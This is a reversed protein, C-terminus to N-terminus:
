GRNGGFSQVFLKGAAVRDHSLQAFDGAVRGTVLWGALEKGISPAIKFGHGSGGCFDAYGATGTRPGAFPYWDPTVDYLAAYSDVLRMGSFAPFRHVMRAQVDAVFEPDASQKYNCPDVDFYQKPFGRGIVYRREGLPRIYIADVGNSISTTPVNRGRPAEWVTDQERVSRMPMDLGAGEALARAWPGAANVVMGAPVTGDETEVGTIRTRDGVLRRAPTRPRWDGGLARFAEVHAETARVPDAHGGDPEYVIGAIGEPNIEPLHEPFACGERLENVIGMSKQMAVNRRGGELMDPSLIFCYGAKVYGADRGLEERARGLMVMSERALRVLLPTSYSQRMIAASRGTGGSAAEGRELLLVRAGAKRLHYAASAGAIGAGVVVFDFSV